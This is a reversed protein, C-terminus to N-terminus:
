NPLITCILGSFDVTGTDPATGTVSITVTGTAGAAIATQSITTASGGAPNVGSPTVSWGAIATSGHNVITVVMDAQYSKGAYIVSSAHGNSAVVTFTGAVTSTGTVAVVGNATYDHTDIVHITANNSHGNYTAVVGATGVSVGTVLGHSDVTAYSAGISWTASTTVDIVDGDNYTANVTFQQTEGVEITSPNPTVAVSLLVVATVSFTNSNTIKASQFASYAFVGGITTLALVVAIIAIVPIGLWKKSSFKKM